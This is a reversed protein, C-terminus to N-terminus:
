HRIAPAELICPKIWDTLAEGEGAMDGEGAMQPMAAIATSHTPIGSTDYITEGPKNDFWVDTMDRVAGDTLTYSGLQRHANGHKDKRNSAAFATNLSKINLSGLTVLRYEGGAKTDTWRMVRLNAWGSDKSDVVGDNNSDLEALAAFGHAAKNGNKLTTNNGFLESGDNIKGDGNRDWVLVGDDAAAWRSMEAFGDGEHDFFMVEGAEVGDGDLDLVLPSAPDAADDLTKPPDHPQPKKPCPKEPNGFLRDYWDRGFEDGMHSGLWSAGFVTVGLLWWPATVTVLASAVTASVTVLAVAGLGGLVSGLFSAGARGLDEGTAVAEGFRALAGLYPNLVRGLGAGLQRASTGLGSKEIGKSIDSARGLIWGPIWSGPVERPAVPIPKPCSM